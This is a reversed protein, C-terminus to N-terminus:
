NNKEYLNGGKPQSAIQSISCLFVVLHSRHRLKGLSSFLLSSGLLQSTSPDVQSIRTTGFSGPPGSARGEQQEKCRVQGQCPTQSMTQSKSEHQASHLHERAGVGAGNGDLFHKNGERGWFVDRFGM